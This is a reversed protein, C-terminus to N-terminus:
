ELAQFCTLDKKMETHLGCQYYLTGATTSHNSPITITIYDGTGSIGNNTTNNNNQFSGSMWIKFPHINSIANAEFKYTKGRMFRFTGNGINIFIILSNYYKCISNHIM